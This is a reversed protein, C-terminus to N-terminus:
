THGALPGPPMTLKAQWTISFDDTTPPEPDSFALRARERARLNASLPPLPHGSDKLKVIGNYHMSYVPELAHTAPDRREEVDFFGAQGRM